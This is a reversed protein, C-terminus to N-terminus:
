GCGSTVCSSVPIELAPIACEIASRVTQATIPGAIDTGLVCAVEAEIRPQLVRSVPTPADHGYAMDAFLLGFDPQDVGLQRQVAPSTLGIRPGSLRRGSALARERFLIQVEYPADIDDAGILDRVPDCPIGSESVM